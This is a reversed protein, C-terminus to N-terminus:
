DVGKERYTLLVNGKCSEVGKNKIRLFSLSNKKMLSPIEQFSLSSKSHALIGNNVWSNAM